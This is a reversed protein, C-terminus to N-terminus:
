EEGGEGLLRFSFRYGEYLAIAWFLFDISSISEIMIDFLVSFGLLNFTEPYSIGQENAIIGVISLFSGSLVSLLSIGAGVYGFLPEIGKGFQRMAIGVGAGIALAMFGIQYGSVVTSFSWILAGILGIFSAALTGMPLNQDKRLQEMLEATMAQPPEELAPANGADEPNPTDAGSEESFALFPCPVEPAPGNTSLTLRYLNQSRFPTFQRFLALLLESSM